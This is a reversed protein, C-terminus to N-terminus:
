IDAYRGYQKFPIIGPPQRSEGANEHAHDPVIGHGSRKRPSFSASGLLLQVNASATFPRRGSLNDFLKSFWRRQLRYQPESRDNCIMGGTRLRELASDKRM